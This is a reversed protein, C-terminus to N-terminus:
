ERLANKAAASALLHPLPHHRISRLEKPSRFFCMAACHGQSNIRELSSFWSHHGEIFRGIGSAVTGLVLCCDACAFQHTCIPWAGWCVACLDGKAQGLGFSVVISTAGYEKQWYKPHLTNKSGYRAGHGIELVIAAAWRSLDEGEPGM